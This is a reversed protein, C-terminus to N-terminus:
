RVNLNGVGGHFTIVLKNESENFNPTERAIQMDPINGASTDIFRADFDADGVGLQAFVRVAADDPVDINVSGVGGDIEVSTLETRPVPLQLNTEGVGMSITLKTLNLASLDLDTRGVGGSVTLALPVDPDINVNWYFQDDRNWNRMNLFGPFNFGLNQIGQQTLTIHRQGEGTVAYTLEGTHGIEAEFANLSDDLAGITLKAVGSELEVTLTEVGDSPEEYNMTETEAEGFNLITVTLVSLLACIFLSSGIMILRTLCGVCGSGGSRNRYVLVDRM